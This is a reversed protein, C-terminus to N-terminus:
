ARASAPTRCSVAPERGAAWAGVAMGVASDERTASVYGWKPEADFERIVGKLLSCPVGAFFDYGARDLASLFEKSKPMLRDAGLCPPLGRVHRGGDLGQLHGGYAGRPRRRHPEAPLRHARGRAPDEGPAPTPRRAVERADRLARPLAERGGPLADAHRDVRRQRRRSRGRHAERRRIRPPVARLDRLRARRSSTATRGSPTEARDVVLVVDGDAQLLRELLSRDFLLDGYLVVTRGEIGDAAAMLSDLEGSSEEVVYTKLNPLDVAEHKWGIVAAVDKIAAANLAEVQRALITKGKIDLMAKPRDATLEGLEPSAGAALVIAGVQAGGAPLYCKEERKMDDVGILGYVDTLPVVLEDAASARKEDMIRRFAQRMAKISSRLGHNAYIILKFGAQGLTQATTEKYITPVCVLPTERDWHSAFELVEAPSPVELPDAGHRRRRGRVHARAPAGGGHGVRRHASGHPRHDPLRRGHPHGPVGQDQRCAGRARRARARVGAYFSCRKPFINDEICIAAIGAREYERVTHIVNIANGYGNDCDAVIPIDIVQAMQEAADLAERMTLINADPVGHSASIEFGSAWVGDFGAEEVLKASLGTHAGAILVPDPHGLRERLLKRVM